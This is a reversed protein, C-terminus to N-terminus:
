SSEWMNRAKLRWDKIVDVRLMEALLKQNAKIEVDIKRSEYSLNKIDELSPLEYISDRLREFEEERSRVGSLESDKFVDMKEVLVLSELRTKEREMEEETAGVINVYVTDENRDYHIELFNGNDLFHDSPIV